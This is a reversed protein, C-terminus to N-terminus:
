TVHLRDCVKNNTSHMVCARLRFGNVDRNMRREAAVTCVEPIICVLLLYKYLQSVTELALVQYRTPDANKKDVDIDDRPDELKEM